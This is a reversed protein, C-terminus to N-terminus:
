KLKKYPQLPKMAYKTLFINVNVTRVGAKKKVKGQYWFDLQDLDFLEKGHRMLVHDPDMFRHDADLTDTPIAEM